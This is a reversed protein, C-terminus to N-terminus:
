KRGPAYVTVSVARVYGRGSFYLLRMNTLRGHSRTASFRRSLREWCARITLRYSKAASDASALAWATSNSIRAPALSAARLAPRARSPWEDM